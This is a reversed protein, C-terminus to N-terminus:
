PVALGDYKVLVAFGDFVRLDRACKRLLQDAKENRKNIITYSLTQDAFGGGEIFKIYQDLCVKGTGSSNVIELVKQPYDNDLGYAKIKKSTLYVNREVRQTTKAASVKM